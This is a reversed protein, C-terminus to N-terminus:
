DFKLRPAGRGDTTELGRRGAAADCAASQEDARGGWDRPVVCTDSGDAAHGAKDAAPDATRRERHAKIAFREPM